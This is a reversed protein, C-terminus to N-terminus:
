SFLHKLSKDVAKSAKPIRGKADSPEDKVDADTMMGATVLKKHFNRQETQVLKDRKKSVMEAVDVESRERCLALPAGSATARVPVLVPLQVKIKISTGIALVREEAVIKVTAEAEDDVVPILFALCTCHPQPCIWVPAGWADAAQVGWTDLNSSVRLAGFFPLRFDASLHGKIILPFSTGHPSREIVVGKATQSTAMLTVASQLERLYPM